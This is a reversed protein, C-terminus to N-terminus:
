KYAMCKLTIVLVYLSACAGMAYYCTYQGHQFMIRKTRQGPSDVFFNAIRHGSEQTGSWFVVYAVYAMFVVAAIAVVLSLMSCRAALLDTAGIFACRSHPRPQM